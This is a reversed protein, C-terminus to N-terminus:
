QPLKVQQTWLMVNHRTCRTTYICKLEDQNTDQLVKMPTLSKLWHTEGVSPPRCRQPYHQCDAPRENQLRPRRKLWLQRQQLHHGVGVPQGPVPAAAGVGALHLLLELLEELELYDEGEICLEPLYM